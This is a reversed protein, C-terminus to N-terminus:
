NLFSGNLRLLVFNITNLGILNMTDELNNNIIGSLKPQENGGEESTDKFGNNKRCFHAMPVVWFAAKQSCVLGYNISSFSSLSWKQINTQKTQKKYNITVIKVHEFYFHIQWLRLSYSLDGHMTNQWCNNEWLEKIASKNPIKGLYLIFVLSWGYKELLNWYWQFLPCIWFELPWHRDM